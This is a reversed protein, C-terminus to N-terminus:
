SWNVLSTGSTASFQVVAFEGWLRHALADEDSFESYYREVAPNLAAHERQAAMADLVVSLEAIAM